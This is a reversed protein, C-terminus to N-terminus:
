GDELLYFGQTQIWIHSLIGSFYKEDLNMPGNQGDDSNLEDYLEDLGAEKPCAAQHVGFVDEPISPPVDKAFGTSTAHNLEMFCNYEMYCQSDCWSLLPLGVWRFCEDDLAAVQNEARWEIEDRVMKWSNITEKPDVRM